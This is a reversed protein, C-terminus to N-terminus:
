GAAPKKREANTTRAKWDAQLQKARQKLAKRGDYLKALLNVQWARRGVLVTGMTQRNNFFNLASHGEATSASDIGMLTDSAYFDQVLLYELAMGPGLKKFSEDYAIKPTFATPGTRISLKMAIPKGEFLLSDLAAFGPRYAARAFAVHDKHSLFSTGQVGKWGSHELQLFEELRKTFTGGDEVHELSFPGAEGLRRMTRRVDQLRSKSLVQNLHAEFGGELRSLHARDYPAVVRWHLGKAVAAAQLMLGLPSGTDIDAFSWAAPAKGSAIREAWWQVVDGAHERHVLPAGGFQYTNALSNAVPFLAPVIARPQTLFLAALEGDTTRFAHARVRKSKDLTDLGALVHGRDYFPNEVLAAASLRDWDDPSLTRLAAKDLQQVSLPAARSPSLVKESMDSDNFAMASTM